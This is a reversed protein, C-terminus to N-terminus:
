ARAQDCYNTEAEGRGEALGARRRLGTSRFCRGSICHLGARVNRETEDIADARLVGRRSITDVEFRDKGNHDVAVDHDRWAAIDDTRHSLDLPWAPDFP